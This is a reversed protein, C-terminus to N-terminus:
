LPMDRRLRTIIDLQTRATAEARELERGLRQIAALASVDLVRSAQSRMRRDLQRVGEWQIIVMTDGGGTVVGKNIRIKADSPYGGYTHGGASATFVDSGKQLPHIGTNVDNM